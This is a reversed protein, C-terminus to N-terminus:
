REIWDLFENVTDFIPVGCRALVTKSQHGGALLVCACGVAQAAEFDHDTDGVFLASEPNIGNSKM